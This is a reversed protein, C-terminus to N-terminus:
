KVVVQGDYLLSITNWNGLNKDKLDKMVLELRGLSEKYYKIRNSSEKCEDSLIVTFYKKKDADLLVIRIQGPYNMLIRKVMLKYYYSDLVSILDLAPRVPELQRGMHIKPPPHTTKDFGYIVPLAKDLNVCLNKPMVYGDGDVVKGSNEDFLFARPIREVVDFVLTDPLVRRVEISEISPAKSKIRERILRLDLTFINTEGKKVKLLPEIPNEGPKNNLLSLLEEFKDNWWGESKVIVSHLLFHNNNWFLVDKAFIAFFFAIAIVLLLSLVVISVRFYTSRLITRDSNAVLKNKALSSM